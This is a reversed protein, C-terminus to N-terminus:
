ASWRQSASEPRGGAVIAHPIAEPLKGPERSPARGAAPDRAVVAWADRVNRVCAVVERMQEASEAHSAELMMAFMAAYFDSLAMAPKGGIDMRLRAQLYMVIDLGRKVTYRREIVDGQEIAEAARQLFRLWGDYLALVLEVGTACALAEEEYTSM